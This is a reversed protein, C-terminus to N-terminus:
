SNILKALIEELSPSHFNLIEQSKKSNLYQNFARGSIDNKRDVKIILDSNLRMKRSYQIGFDYRSIQTDSVIHLVGVFNSLMVNDILISSFTFVDIPSFIVNNYMNIANGKDLNDIIWDTFSLVNKKPNSGILTTRIIQFNNSFKQLYIEAMHKSLGYISSPSKNSDIERLIDFDSFVADSSIHIIKTKKEVVKTLKFIFNSNIEFAHLPNLDCYNVDIIAACNIIIDPNTSNLLIKLSGETVNYLDLVFHKDYDISKSSSTYVVYNTQILKEVIISGLMGSSGFVLINM